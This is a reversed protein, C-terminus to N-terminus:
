ADEEVRGDAGLGQGVGALDDVREDVVGLPQQPDPLDLDAGRRRPAWSTPAWSRSPWRPGSSRRARGPVPGAGGRGGVLLGELRDDGDGGVGEGPEPQGLVHGVEGAVVQQGVQGVAAQQEVPDLVRQLHRPAAAGPDRQEEDVEVAELRDVVPEAVRGAVGHQDVDGCRSVLQTRCLSM